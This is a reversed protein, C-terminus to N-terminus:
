LNKGYIPMAAMAVMKATKREGAGLLSWMFNSCCQGLPKLATTQFERCKGMYIYPAWVFAYLLM